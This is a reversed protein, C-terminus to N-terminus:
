GVLMGYVRRELSLGELEPFPDSFKLINYKEVESQWLFLYYGLYLFLQLCLVLCGWTLRRSLAVFLSFFLLVLADVLHWFVLLNGDFSCHLTVWSNTIWWRTYWKILWNAHSFIGTCSFASFREFCFYLLFLMFANSQGEPVIPNSMIDSQKQLQNLLLSGSKSALIFCM